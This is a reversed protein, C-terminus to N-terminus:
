NRDCFIDMDTVRQHLLEGFEDESMKFITKESKNFVEHNFFKQNDPATQILYQTTQRFLEEVSKSIDEVKKANSIGWLVKAEIGTISFDRYIKSVGM